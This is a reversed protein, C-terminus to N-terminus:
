PSKEKPPDEWSSKDRIKKLADTYARIREQGDAIYLIKAIVKDFAPNLIVVVPVSFHPNPTHIEREVIPPEQHNETASDSYILIADNQLARIAYTTAAHSGKGMPKPHPVLNTTFTSIWAIPKHEEAARKKAEELQSMRYVAPAAFGSIATLLLTVIVLCAGSSRNAQKM